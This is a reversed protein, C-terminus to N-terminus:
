VGFMIGIVTGFIAELNFITVITISSLYKVSFNALLHGVIGPILGIYLAYWINEAHTWDGVEAYSEPFIAVTYVFCLVIATCNIGFTNFVVPSNHIKILGTSGRLYLVIGVAGGLAIMDGIISSTNSAGSSSGFVIMLMGGIGIM